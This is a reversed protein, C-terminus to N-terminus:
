RRKQRVVSRSKSEVSFVPDAGGPPRLSMTPRSGVGSRAGEGYCDLEAPYPEDRFHSPLKADGRGYLTLLLSRSGSDAM